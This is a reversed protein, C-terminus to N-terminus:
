ANTKVAKEVAELRELIEQTAKWNMSAMSYLNIHKGDDSLVEDPTEREIVFGTKARTKDDDYKMKYEYIKSSKFAKLTSNKQSIDRKSSERSTVLVGDVEVGSSTLASHGGSDDCVSVGSSTIMTYLDGATGNIDLSSAIEIRSSFRQGEEASNKYGSANIPIDQYEPPHILSIRSSVFTPLTAYIYYAHTIMDMRDRKYFMSGIEGNDSKITGLTVLNGSADVTFAKETLYANATTSNNVTGGLYNSEQYENELWEKRSCYFGITEDTADSLSMWAINITCPKSSSAMIGRFAIGLDVFGTEGSYDFVLKVVTEGNYNYASNLDMGSIDPASGYFPRIYYTSANSSWNLPYIQASISYRQGSVLWMKQMIASLGSDSPTLQMYAWSQNLGQQQLTGNYAYWGNTGYYFEDNYFLNLKTGVGVSLKDATISEAAIQVAGISGTAISSGKIVTVNNEQATVADLILKSANAKENAGNIAKALVATTYTATNDDWTIKSRTWIYKDKEWEPQNTSWSGDTVSTSSASLYYQEEIKKIGLGDAGTSGKAGTICVPETETVEGGATTQTKTWIYYGDQWAPAATSWSTPPDTTSQNKGYLVDVNTISSNATDVVGNLLGELNEYSGGGVVLKSTDILNAKLKGTTICDANIGDYTIATRYTIGGDTSLGIGAYNARILGGSGDQYQKILWGDPNGDSDSDLIEYHGGLAGNIANSANIIAQQLTTYQRNLAARTREDVTDFSIEADGGPCHTNMSLGGTLDIDQRAVFVTYSNGSKDTVTVTDGCEVCPNGRWECSSPQFSLGTYMDYLNYIESETIIPNVFSIGQGTGATFVADDIGSTVSNIMFEEEATKKFGNQWQVEPQITIEEAPFYQYRSVALKGITNVRANAGVLGALFGFVERETYATLILAEEETIARSQLEALVDSEIDLELSHKQAINDLLVYANTPFTLSTNWKDTMGDVADYATVKVTRWDDDTEPKDVKYYGCPIYFFSDNLKTVELTVDEDLDFTQFMVWAAGEPAEVTVTTVHDSTEESAYEEGSLYNKDADYWIVSAGGWEGRGTYLFKDGEFVPILNTVKIYYTESDVWKGNNTLYYGGVKDTYSIEVPYKVGCEVFLTKGAYNYTKDPNYFEADCSSACCSGFVLGDSDSNGEQSIEIKTIGKEFSIQKLFNAGSGEGFSLRQRFERTSEALASYVGYKLTSDTIQYM